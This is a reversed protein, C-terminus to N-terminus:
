LIDGDLKCQEVHDRYETVQGLLTDLEKIQQDVVNVKYKSASDVNKMLNKETKDLHNRIQTIIECIEGKTAEAQQSIENKRNALSQRAAVLRDLEENLPQLSSQVITDKHRHYTDSVLDYNHDKHKKVTCDRCILQQCQECFIKLKKNHETCVM